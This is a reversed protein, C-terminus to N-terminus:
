VRQLLCCPCADGLMEAKGWKAVNQWKKGGVKPHAELVRALKLATENQRRVRLDLTKIGRGILFAAHQGGWGGGRGDGDWGGLGGM